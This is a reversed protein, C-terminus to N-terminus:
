VLYNGLTTHDALDGNTIRGNVLAIAQFADSGGDADIQIETRNGQVFQTRLFGGGVLDFGDDGTFGEFLSTDFAFQDQSSGNMKFDTITDIGDLSTFAFQDVGDGGILRDNGAGGILVDNGQGAELQDDGENGLLRDNGQGGNLDDNGAGAFLQDNGKGGKLGDNGAGADVLDNGDGGDLKDNGAAGFLQDNGNGGDLEDNGEGADLLDDGDGGELEDHGGRGFLRDNGGEGDLEDNGANGTLENPRSNGSLEDGAVGGIINEVNVIEDDGFHTTGDSLNIKISRTSASFDLTDVGNGGDYEDEGDRTHDAVLFVDNGEGGKVKDDGKGGTIVDDGADGFIFDDDDGGDVIDNGAGSFIIDDDDGGSVVDNGGMANIRDDGDGGTITENGPTGDLVDDDDTGVVDPSDLVTDDRVSLNQIRTDGTQPTDAQQFPTASYKAALYEALADQERGNDTFTAAGTRSAVDDAGSADGDLDVRNAFAPNAAIYEAFKFGDPRNFGGPQSANPTGILFSLTVMRIAAPAGAVVDGNEVVVATVQGNEDVLAVTQVRNGAPLTSDYSFRLGGVHAFIGGPNSVGNELAELLQGPTLTVLSLANNFRLSNEIDLQSIEGAEKNAEPNAAPPLETGDSAISGISDRIGGGNKISIVVNSDTQQGIFLNADASLNGLNTEESRVTARRGELYVETKGFQVGDKVSIVGDIATTLDRVVDGRSGEAFPDVGTGQYVRELGAQDTAYAGNINPDLSAPLLRGQDDFEVV